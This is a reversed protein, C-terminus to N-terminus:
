GTEPEGYGVTVAAVAITMDAGADDGLAPISVGSGVALGGDVIEPLVRGYPFVSALAKVDVTEPRPVGVKVHLRMNDYGGPIVARASPFSNFEIANRCARTAAKTSDQGHGDCGFGCEIFIVHQMWKNPVVTPSSPTASAM